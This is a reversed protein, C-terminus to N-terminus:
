NKGLNESIRHVWGYHRGYLQGCQSGGDAANQNAWELRLMDFFIFVGKSNPGPHPFSQMRPTLDHEEVFTRKERSFEVDNERKTPFLLVCNERRDTCYQTM